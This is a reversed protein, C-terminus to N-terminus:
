HDPRTLWALPTSPLTLLLSYSLMATSAALGSALCLRDADVGTRTGIGASATSLRDRQSSPMALSRRATSPRATLDAARTRTCAAWALIGASHFPDMKRSISVVFPHCTVSSAAYRLCLQEPDRWRNSDHGFAPGNHHLSSGKRDALSMLHGTCGDIAIMEDSIHSEDTPGANIVRLVAIDRILHARPFIRPDAIARPDPGRHVDIVCGAGGCSPLRGPKRKHSARPTRPDIVRGPFVVPSHHGCRNRRAEWASPQM